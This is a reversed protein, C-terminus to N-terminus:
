MGTDSVHTQPRIVFAPVAAFRIVTSMSTCRGTVPDPHGDAVRPLAHYVGACMYGINNAAARGIHVPGFNVDTLFNFANAIDWYGALIGDALAGDPAVQAQLQLDRFYYYNDLAQVKFRLRADVPGATLEGDVIQGPFPESHYMPDEHVAQSMDRIVEGNADKSVPGRSTFLRAEFRGNRMDGELIRIELLTSYANELMANGTRFVRDLLGNPRYGSVCGMLRWHQNDIGGAFDNHACRGGVAFTSHTSDLDLGTVAAEGEFVIHGPDPWSDPFRCPDRSELISVM